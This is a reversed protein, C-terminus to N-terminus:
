LQFNLKGCTQQNIRRILHLETESLLSFSLKRITRQLSFVHLFEAVFSFDNAKIVVSSFKCVPVCCMADGFNNQEVRSGHM